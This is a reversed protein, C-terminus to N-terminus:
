SKFNKLWYTVEKTDIIKVFFAGLCVALIFLIKYVIWSYSWQHQSFAICGVFVILHLMVLYLLKYKELYIPYFKQSFYLLAGNLLVYSFLTAVAAGLAGWIPIFWINLLVNVFTAFWHIYSIYKTKLSINIGFPTFQSVGSVTTALLIIATTQTAGWYSSPSTFYLLEFSFLSMGFGLVSILFFWLTFLRGIIHRHNTDESVLRVAWPSWAQGFASNVFYIIMSFKAAISYFGLNTADSLTGLLWRDVSAFLWFALGAFIFPFGYDFMKKASTSDFVLALDKKISWLAFPMLLIVFLLAGIFSGLIGQNYYVIFVLGLLIGGLSNLANLISFTLPAFHLRLTDLCYQLVQRFPTAVLATALVIWTIGYNKQIIDEFPYAFIPVLVGLIVSGLSVIWLGTSVLVIRDKETSEWYFRSTGYRVGLDAVMALLSVITSVLEIIGFDEVSFLHTYIPFLFFAIAKFVFDGVGYLVSDKLLNKLM